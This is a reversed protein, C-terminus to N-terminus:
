HNTSTDAGNSAPLLEVRIVGDAAASVTALDTDLLPMPGDPVLAAFTLWAAPDVSLLHKATADFPKSLTSIGLYLNEWRARSGIM